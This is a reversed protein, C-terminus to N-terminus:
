LPFAQFELVCGALWGAPLTCHCCCGSPSVWRQLWVSGHHPPQQEQGAGPPLRQWCPWPDCVAGEPDFGPSLFPSAHHIWGCPSQSWWCEVHCKHCHSFNWWFTLEGASVAKPSWFARIIYVLMKWLWHTLFFYISVFGQFIRFHGIFYFACPKTSLLRYSLIDTCIVTYACM